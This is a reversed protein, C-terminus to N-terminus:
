GRMIEAISINGEGKEKIKNICDDAVDIADSLADYSTYGSRQDTIGVSQMNDMSKQLNAKENEWYALTSPDGGMESIVRKEYDTYEKGM